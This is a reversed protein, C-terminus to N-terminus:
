TNIYTCIYTNTDIYVYWVAHVHLMFGAPDVERLDMDKLALTRTERAEFFFAYAQLIYIQM